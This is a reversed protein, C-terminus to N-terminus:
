TVLWNLHRAFFFLFKLFGATLYVVDFWYISVNEEQAQMRRLHSFGTQAKSRHHRYRAKRVKDHSSYFDLFRLVGHDSTM